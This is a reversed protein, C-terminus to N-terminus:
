FGFHNKRIIEIQMPNGVFVLFRKGKLISCIVRVKREEYVILHVIQLMESHQGIGFVTGIPAPFTQCVVAVTDNFTDIQDTGSFDAAGNIHLFDVANEAFHM